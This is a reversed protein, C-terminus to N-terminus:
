EQDVSQPPTNLATPVRFQTCSLVEFTGDPHHLYDVKCSYDGAEEALDWSIAVRSGCEEPTPLSERAPDNWQTVPAHIHFRDM